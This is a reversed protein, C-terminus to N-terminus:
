EETYEEKEKSDMTNKKRLDAIKLKHESNESVYGKGKCEPCSCHIKNKSYQHLNKYFDEGATIARDLKLKRLAKQWNIKRTYARGRTEKM